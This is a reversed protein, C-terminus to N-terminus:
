SEPVAVAYLLKGARASSDRRSPRMEEPAWIWPVKGLCLLRDGGMTGLRLKSLGEQSFCTFPSEPRGAGAEGSPGLGRHGLPNIM